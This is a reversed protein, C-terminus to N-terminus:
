QTWSERGRAELLSSPKLRNWHSWHVSKYIGEPVVSIGTWLLTTGKRKPVFPCTKKQSFSLCSFANTIVGAVFCAAAKVQRARVAIKPPVCTAGSVLERKALEIPVAFLQTVTTLGRVTWNYAYQLEAEVAWKVKYWIGLVESLLRRICHLIKLRSSFEM